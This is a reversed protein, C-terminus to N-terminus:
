VGITALWAAEVESTTMGLEVEFAADLDPAVYLAKLADPGWGDLLFAVFHGAVPYSIGGYYSGFDDRLGALGPLEGSAAYTAAWDDLPEDWWQGGMAVAIGNGRETYRYGGFTFAGDEFWVPLVGNMAMLLANTDPAGVILLDLASDAETLDGAERLEMHAVFGSYWGYVQEALARDDASSGHVLLVTDTTGWGNFGEGREAECGDVVAWDLPVASADGTDEPATEEVEPKDATAVCGLLIMWM